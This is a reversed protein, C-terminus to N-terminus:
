SIPRTWKTTCSKPPGHPSAQATLRGSDNALAVSILPPAAM